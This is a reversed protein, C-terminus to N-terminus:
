ISDLGWIFVRNCIESTLAPNLSLGLAMPYDESGQSWRAFRKNALDAANGKAPALLTIQNYGCIQGLLICAEYVGLCDGGWEHVVGIMDLGKGCVAYSVIIDGEYGAAIKLAPITLLERFEKVSREVTYGTKPRISLMRKLDDDSLDNATVLCINRLMPRRAETSFYFRREQGWTTFGFKHYFRVLDSWLVLGDLGQSRASSILSNLLLSMRGKGQQDHATAVNGILAIRLHPLNPDTAILQRQWFNAHCHVANNEDILLYSHSRDNDGLVLPYEDHITFPLPDPRLQTKIIKDRQKKLSRTLQSTIEM